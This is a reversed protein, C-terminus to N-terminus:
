NQKWRKGVWTVKKLWFQAILFHWYRKIEKYLFIKRNKEELYILIVFLILRILERRDDQVEPERGNLEEQMAEGVLSHIRVRKWFYTHCKVHMM